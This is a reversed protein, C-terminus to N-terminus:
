QPELDLRKCLHRYPDPDLKGFLTSGSGCCQQFYSKVRLLTWSPYIKLSSQVLLIADPKSLFITNYDKRSGMRPKRGPPPPPPSRYNFFRM